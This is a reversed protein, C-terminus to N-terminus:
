RVHYYDCVEDLFDEAMEATATEVYRQLETTQYSLANRTLEQGHQKTVFAQEAVMTAVTRMGDLDAGVIHHLIRYIDNIENLDVGDENKGEMLNM